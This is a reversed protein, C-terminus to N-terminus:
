SIITNLLNLNIGTIKPPPIYNTIKNNDENNSIDSM